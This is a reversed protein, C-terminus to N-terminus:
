YVVRDTPRDTPQDTPTRKPHLKSKRAFKSVVLCTKILTPMYAYSIINLFWLQGTQRNTPQDLHVERKRTFKPYKIFFTPLHHTLVYFNGTRSNTPQNTPQNIPQNTLQDTTQNPHLFSKRGFKPCTATREAEITM